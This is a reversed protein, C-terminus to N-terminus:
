LVYSLVDAAGLLPLLDKIINEHPINMAYGIM